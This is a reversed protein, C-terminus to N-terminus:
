YYIPFKTNVDHRVLHYGLQRLKADVIQMNKLSLQIEDRLHSFYNYRIQYAKDFYSIADGHLGQFYLLRALGDLAFCVGISQPQGAIELAALTQMYSNEAEKFMAQKEYVTAIQALIMGLHICHQPPMREYALRNREQVEAAKLQSAPKFLNGLLFHMNQSDVIALAKAFHRHALNYNKTIYCVEALNLIPYVNHTDWEGYVQQVENAFETYQNVVDPQPLINGKLYYEVRFEQVRNITGSNGPSSVQETLLDECCKKSKTFYNLAKSYDGSDGSAEGLLEYTSALQPHYDSLQEIEQEFVATLLARSERMLALKQRKERRGMGGAKKFIAAALAGTIKIFVSHDSATTTSMESHCDRLQSIGSDIDVQSTHLAALLCKMLGVHSSKPDFNKNASLLAQEFYDTGSSPGKYKSKLLSAHGALLFCFPEYAATVSSPNEESKSLAAAALASETAKDWRGMIRSVDSTFLLCEILTSKSKQGFESGDKQSESIKTAEEVMALCADPTDKKSFLLCYALVCMTTAVEPNTRQYVINAASLSLSAEVYADDYRALYVLCEAMSLRASSTSIHDNGHIGKLVKVALSINVLADKYRTMQLDLHAIRLLGECYTEIMLSTQDTNEGSISKSRQLCDEGDGETLGCITRHINNITILCNRCKPYFKYGWIWYIQSLETLTEIKSESDSNQQSLRVLSKEREPTVERGGCIFLHNSQIARRVAFINELSTVGLLKRLCKDQHGKLRSKDRLKHVNGPPFIWEPSIVSACGSSANEPLIAVPMSQKVSQLRWDKSKKPTAITQLISIKMTMPESTKVCGNDNIAANDSLTVTVISVGGFHYSPTFFLTGTCDITPLGGESFVSPCHAWVNYCLAQDVGPQHDHFNKSFDKIAQPGCGQRVEVLSPITFRPTPVDNETNIPVVVNLDVKKLDQRAREVPTLDHVTHGNTAIEQQLKNQEEATLNKGKIAFPVGSPSAKPTAYGRSVPSKVGRSAGPLSFASPSTPQPSLNYSLAPSATRGPSALQENSTYGLLKDTLDYKQVQKGGDTPLVVPRAYSNTVGWKTKGLQKKVQVARGGAGAPPMVGQPRFRSSKPLFDSPANKAKINEFPEM